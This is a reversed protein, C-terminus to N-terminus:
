WRECEATSGSVTLVGKIIKKLHINFLMNYRALYFLWFEEFTKSTMKEFDEDNVISNVITNFNQSLYVSDAQIGFFNQLQSINDFIVSSRENQNTENSILSKPNMFAFLDFNIETIQDQIANTMSDRFSTLTIAPNGSPNDNLLQIGDFIFERDTKELEDPSRLFHGTSQDITSVQLYYRTGVNGTKLKTLEKQSEELISKVTFISLEKGQLKKSTSAMVNTVDILFALNNLFNRGKLRKSLGLARNRILTDFKQDMAINELTVVVTHFGRLLKKYQENASAIWRIKFVNRVRGYKKGLIKSIEDLM